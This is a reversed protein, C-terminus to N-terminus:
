AKGVRELAMKMLDIESSQKLYGSDQPAFISGAIAAIILERAKPDDTSSMLLSYTGLANARHQNVTQNHRAAVYNRGCFYLLYLLGVIVLLKSSLLQWTDTVELWGFIFHSALSFATISAVMVVCAGIWWKSAISQAVAEKAFREAENSVVIRGVTSQAEAVAAM